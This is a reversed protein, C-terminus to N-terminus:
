YIYAQESKGLRTYASKHIAVEVTCFLYLQGILNADFVKFPRKIEQEMENLLALDVDVINGNM